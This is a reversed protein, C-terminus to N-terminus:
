HGMTNSNSRGAGHYPSDDVHVAAEPTNDNSPVMEPTLRQPVKSGHLVEKEWVALNAVNWTLPPLAASSKADSAAEKAKQAWSDPVFDPMPYQDWISGLPGSGYLSKFDLGTVGKTQGIPYDPMRRKLLAKLLYKQNFNKEYRRETPISMSVQVVRGASFPSFVVKGLAHAVQRCRSLEEVSMTSTWSSLFIQAYPDTRPIADIDIRDRVYKLRNELRAEVRDQGFLECLWPFNTYDGCSAMSVASYVDNVDRNLRNATKWLSRLRPSRAWSPPEEGKMLYPIMKNAWYAVQTERAAYGSFMSDAREGSVFVDYETALAVPWLLTHFDRQPLGALRISRVMQALTDQLRIPVEILEKGAMRAAKRAYGSQFKWQDSLCEPRVNIPTSWGNTYTQVLSSDIGGTFLTALSSFHRVPTMSEELANHIRDVYRVPTREEEAPEVRAFIAEKLIHGDARLVVTSGFGLRRIGEVHTQDNTVARFLLHDIIADESTRRREPPLHACVAGFNDTAILRGQSLTGFYFEYSSSLGKWAQLMALDENERYDLRVILVDGWQRCLKEEAGPEGLYFNWEKNPCLRVGSLFWKTNGRTFTELHPDKFSFIASPEPHTTTHYNM